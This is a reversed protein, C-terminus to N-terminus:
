AAATASRLLGVFDAQVATPLWDAHTTLGVTRRQHPVALDLVALSDGGGEGIVCGQPLLSLRDSAALAAVTGGLSDAEIQVRRPLDWGTVIRDIVARRPLSATPVVWGYPRLDAPALDRRAALPHGSRCAVRYPDDFLAEETLDAFPPPARLAGFIVDLSGSRLADALAAYPGERITLRAWPHRELLTEAARAVLRVPALALVGITVVAAATGRGLSLEERAARIEAGALAFRRALEAGTPSLGVGDRTRRYLPVGVRQELDRAARHLTPEAVGLAAAARRFTEATWIATLSRLHADGLARVTRAVAESAPDRGTAAGVAGALRSFFRDIRRALVRGDETLGSGDGRREMLTTGLAEELGQVARSVAPQTLRLTRAAATMGGAMAAHHFARLRGLTM